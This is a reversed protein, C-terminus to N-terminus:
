RRLPAGSSSNASSSPEFRRLPLGALRALVGTRSADVVVRCRVGYLATRSAFVVGAVRGQDDQLLFVPRAEFYFPIDAELLAEDFVRKVRGPNPIM